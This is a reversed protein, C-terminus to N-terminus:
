RKVKINFPIKSKKRCNKLKINPVFNTISDLISNTKNKQNNEGRRQSIYVTYM